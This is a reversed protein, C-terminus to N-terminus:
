SDPGWFIVTPAAYIGEGTGRQERVQLQKTSQCLGRAWDRLFFAGKQKKGALSLRESGVELWWCREPLLACCTNLRLAEICSEELHKTRSCVGQM